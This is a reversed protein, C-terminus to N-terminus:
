ARFLADRRVAVFVKYMGCVSTEMEVGEHYPVRHLHAFEVLSQFPSALLSKDTRDIGTVNALPLFSHHRLISSFMAEDVRRVMKNKLTYYVGDPETPSFSQDVAYQKPVKGYTGEAINKAVAHDIFIGSFKGRHATCASIRRVFDDSWFFHMCRTVVVNFPPGGEHKWNNVDACVFSAEVHHLQRARATRLKAEDLDIGLYSVRDYYMGLQTGDKIEEELCGLLYGDGCGLDLVSISAHGLVADRLLRKCVGNLLPAHHAKQKKKKNAQEVPRKWSSKKTKKNYWYVKGTKKSTIPQWDDMKQKTFDSGHRNTQPRRPKGYPEHVHAEIYQKTTEVSWISISLM